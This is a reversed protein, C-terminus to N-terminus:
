WNMWRRVEQECGFEAARQLLREKLLWGSRGDPFRSPHEPFGHYSIGPRTRTARYVVGDKIAYLRQPYDHHWRSNSFPLATDLLAQADGVDMDSPCKGVLADRVRVFGAHRERWAHKRKPTEDHEYLWSQAPAPCTM